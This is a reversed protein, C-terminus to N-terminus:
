QINIKFTAERPPDFRPPPGENGKLLDVVKMDITHEGQTLDSLFVFYGTAIARYTGPQIEGWFAVPDQPFTINFFDSKDYSGSIDVRKGDVSVMINSAPTLINDACEALQPDPLPEGGKECVTTTLPLLIAKDPPVICNVQIEGMGPLIDPLFWVPGNQMTACLKSDSYNNAPHLDNPIGMWWTWWKGIWEQYPTGYPASDKTILTYNSSAGAISINWSITIILVVLIIMRVFIFKM